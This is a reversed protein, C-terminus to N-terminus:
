APSLRMTWGDRQHFDPQPRPHHLACHALRGSPDELVACLGLRWPPPPLARHDLVAILDVGDSHDARDILPSPGAPDAIREREARFAYHAWAGSPSFNFEHYGAEHEGAVFAEFCTHRWLGDSRGIAGPDPWRVMGADGRLRFHLVLEHTESRCEATVLVPILPSTPHPLLPQPAIVPRM